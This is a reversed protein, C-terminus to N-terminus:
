TIPEFVFEKNGDQADKQMKLEDLLQTPRLSKLKRLQQSEHIKHFNCRDCYKIAKLKIRITRRLRNFSNQFLQTYADYFENKM